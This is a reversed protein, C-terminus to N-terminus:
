QGLAERAQQLIATEHDAAPGLDDLGVEAAELLLRLQPESLDLIAFRQVPEATPYRFAVATM